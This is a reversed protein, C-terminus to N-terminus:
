ARSRLLDAFETLTRAGSRYPAAPVLAEPDDANFARVSDDAIVPRTDGRAALATRVAEILPVRDPGALQVIGGELSPDTTLEVLTSVVEDVAVPQLLLRPPLRVVGEVTYWNAIQPLFEQFQTARLITFPTKGDVIHQEQVTKGVYYGNDPLGDIGVISLAVHHDVGAAEEAALLRATTGGFFAIAEDKDFTDTNLVDVVVDVGRMAEALGEGTIVDVGARRSAAVVDHGRGRLSAAVRSGVVGSGGAILVRM